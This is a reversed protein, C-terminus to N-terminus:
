YDEELRAVVTWTFGKYTITAGLQFGAGSFATATLVPLFAYKTATDPPTGIIRGLRVGRPRIGHSRNTKSVSAKINSTANGTPPTGAVALRDSDLRIAHVDGSNAEYLTPVTPM